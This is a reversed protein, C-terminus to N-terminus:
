PTVVHHDLSLLHTSARGRANCSEVETAGWVKVWRKSRLQAVLPSDINCVARLAARLVQMDDLEAQTVTLAAPPTVCPAEKDLIDFRSVAACRPCWALDMEGTSIWHHGGHASVPPSKMTTTTM